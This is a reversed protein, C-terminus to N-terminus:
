NQSTKTAVGDPTFKDSLNDVDSGPAGGHKNVPTYHHGSMLSVQMTNANTTASKQLNDNNLGNSPKEVTLHQRNAADEFASVQIANKTTPDQAREASAHM